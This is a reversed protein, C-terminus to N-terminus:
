DYKSLFAKRIHDYWICSWCIYVGRSTDNDFDGCCKVNNKYYNEYCGFAYSNDPRDAIHNGLDILCEYGGANQWIKADRAIPGYTPTKGCGLERQEM